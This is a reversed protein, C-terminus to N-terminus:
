VAMNLLQEEDADGAEDMLEFEEFFDLLLLRLLLLLPLKLLLLLRLLQLLLLLLELELLLLLLLLLDSLAVVACRKSLLDELEAVDGLLLRVRM